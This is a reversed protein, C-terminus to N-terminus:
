WGKIMQILKFWLKPCKDWLVISLFIVFQKLGKKSVSKLDSYYLDYLRRVESLYFAREEEEKEHSYIMFWTRLLFLYWGQLSKEFMDQWGLEKYYRLAEESAYMYHKTHLSIASKHSLSSTNVRYLVHVKNTTAIKSVGGFVKCSSFTDNFYHTPMKEKYQMLEDVINDFVEKKFLIGWFICYAVKEWCLAKIAYEHGTLVEPQGLCDNQTNANWDYNSIKDNDSMHRKLTGVADVGPIDNMLQLMEELLCPNWVDDDDSLIIYEGTAARYGAERTASAGSNEHHVVKVRKDKSAYENMIQYTNDTSGDDVLILEINQYTQELFSDVTERLFDAGNYSGIVVSIKESNVMM